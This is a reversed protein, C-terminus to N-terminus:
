IGGIGIITAGGRIFTGSWIRARQHNHHPNERKDNKAYYNVDGGFKYRHEEWEYSVCQLIHKLYSDIIRKLTM